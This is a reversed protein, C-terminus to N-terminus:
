AHAVESQERAEAVTAHGLAHALVQEAAVVRDRPLSREALRDRVFSEFTELTTHTPTFGFQEIVRSTDLGRGYTLFQVQEASYDAIGARRFWGGVLGVLPGPVPAALRGALRAAQSLMVIGDGAVNYTGAPRDEVTAARLCEIMDHEHVFQLRADYGLVTPLVPLSFYTTMATEVVPGLVNAFRFTTVEVDPRRRGFGRVYGEVEVSDKGWGSRPPHKPETDETFKAPDKPGAGYVSATSKVVLRQVTPTRQCAALLQMTGIVNIEKMTVRGGAQLPTAIVGMHVVTDAGSSALVKAIIPNRIDARVFEVGGIDERPPVVDVGVVRAVGPEDALRRALASGLHRSVGTVLVVSPSV